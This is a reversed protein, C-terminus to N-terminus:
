RMDAGCDEGREAAVGHAPAGRAKRVDCRARVSAPIRAPAPYARAEMRRRFTEADDLTKGSMRLFAAAARMSLSAM